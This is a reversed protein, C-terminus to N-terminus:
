HATAVGYYRPISLHRRRRDGRTRALTPAVVTLSLAVVVVGLLIVTWLLTTAITALGTIPGM